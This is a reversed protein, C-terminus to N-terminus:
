FLGKFKGYYKERMLEAYKGAEHVDDFSALRTNKGEIQLQVVWKNNIWCVNRYGSKNNSNKSKRNRYCNQYDINRLNSQRNDLTNHNIHDVFLTKDETPNSIFVQLALKKKGEESYIITHAYWSKSNNNYSPCWTVDFNKVRELDKLEILTFLNEGKYRKLEIKVIDGEIIYNNKIPIVGKKSININKLNFSGCL